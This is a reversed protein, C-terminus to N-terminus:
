KFVWLDNCAITTCQEPPAFAATFRLSFTFLRVTPFGCLRNCPKRRKMFALQHDIRAIEDIM